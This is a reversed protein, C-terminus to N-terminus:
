TGEWENEPLTKAADPSEPIRRHRSIRDMARTGIWFLLIGILCGLTNHLIDDLECLGLHTIYQLLETLVSLAFGTLATLLLPHRYRHYILPLLLGIPIMVLINLLIQRALGLRRIRLAGDQIQLAEYYSWFLSMNMQPQEAPRRYTLTLYAYLVLYGISLGTLLLKEAISFVAHRSQRYRLIMSLIFIILLVPLIVYLSSIQSLTKSSM